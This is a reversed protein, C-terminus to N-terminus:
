APDSTIQVVGAGQISTISDREMQRQERWQSDAANKESILQGLNAM